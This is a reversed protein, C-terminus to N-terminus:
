GIWNKCNGYFWSIRRDYGVGTVNGHGTCYQLTDLNSGVILGTSSHGITGATVTSNINGTVNCFEIVSNATTSRQFEGCLLGVRVDSGEGGITIDADLNLDKITGSVTRFLGIKANDTATFSGQYTITHNNGNFTGSFTTIVFNNSTANYTGLNLDEKLIYNGNAPYTPYATKGIKLFEEESNIEIRGQADTTQAFSAIGCLLVAVLSLFVKKM